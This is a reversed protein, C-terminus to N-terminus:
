RALVARREEHHTERRLIRGQRIITPWHSAVRRRWTLVMVTYIMLFFIYLANIRHFALGLRHIPGFPVLVLLSTALAVGSALKFEMWPYLLADRFHLRHLRDRAFLGFAWRWFATTASEEDTPPVIPAGARWAFVLLGAGALLLAASIWHLVVPGTGLHHIWTTFGRMFADPLVGKTLRPLLWGFLTLVGSSAGGILGAGLVIEGALRIRRATPTPETM